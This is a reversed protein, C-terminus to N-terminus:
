DHAQEVLQDFFPPQVFTSAREHSTSLQINPLGASTHLRAKKQANAKEKALNSNQNSQIHTQTATQAQQIVSLCQEVLAPALLYGHRFLGNIQLTQGHVTIKPENDPLAPRLGAKIELIEAEAFGKHLSYCSSLLELASRITPPRRDESEIQTAGIVFQHNRKPAIYIPYRPHMLRVPRSIDVEPAHVRIVEGRVGRLNSNVTKAGLGRCDIVWDFATSQNNFTVTNGHHEAATNQLWTIKRKQITLALSSLLERNDLQGENPLFLGKNLYKSQKGLSPELQEIAAANLTKVSSHAQRKLRRQFDLLYAYDQEHSLILSGQQQFFVPAELTELFAPWLNLSHEGMRMINQSSEASEALPALMAAALYAASDHGHENDQDFLTIDYRQASAPQTLAVALMRGMLGAGLVAVRSPQQSPANTSPTM